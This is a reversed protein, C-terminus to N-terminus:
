QGPRLVLAPHLGEEALLPLQGGGAPEPKRLVPGGRPASPGARPGDRCRGNSGHSTMNPSDDESVVRAPDVTVGIPVGLDSGVREIGCWYTDADDLRLKEMTVTFTFNKRNDRISVRGRKVEQESGLTRVLITCSGWDAGRCWWKLYLEWERSYRCQVTLSGQEQGSVAKPGTIASSTSIRPLHTQLLGM